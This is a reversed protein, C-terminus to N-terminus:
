MIITRRVLEPEPVPEEGEEIVYRDKEEESETQIIKKVEEPDIGTGSLIAMIFGDDDGSEVGIIRSQTVEGCGFLCAADQELAMMCAQSVAVCKRYEKGGEMCILVVMDEEITREELKKIRNLIEKLSVRVGRKRQKERKKKIKGYAWLFLVWKILTGKM